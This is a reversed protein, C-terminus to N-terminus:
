SEWSRGMFRGSKGGLGSLAREINRTRAEPSTLRVLCRLIEKKRSPVLAKWAARAAADAEDRPRVGDGSGARCKTSRPSAPSSATGRLM